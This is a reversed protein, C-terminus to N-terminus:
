PPICAIAAVQGQRSAENVYTDAGVSLKGCNESHRSTRCFYSQSSTELSSCRANENRSRRIVPDSVPRSMEDNADTGLEGTGGFSPKGLIDGMAPPIAALGLTCDARLRRDAAAFLLAAFAKAFLNQRDGDFCSVASASTLMDGVVVRICRLLLEIADVVAAAFSKNLM